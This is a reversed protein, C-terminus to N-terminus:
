RLVQSITNIMMLIAMIINMAIIKMTAVDDDDDNDDDNSDDDPPIMNGASNERM